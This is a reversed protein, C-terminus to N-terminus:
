HVQLNVQPEVRAVPRETAVDTAPGERVAGTEGPVLYNVRPVVREAAFDATLGEALLVGQVFVAGSVTADGTGVGAVLAAPGECVRESELPVDPDVLTLLPLGAVDAAVPAEPAARASVVSRVEALDAALGERARRRELPVHADVYDGLPELASVAVPRELPLAAEGSVLAPGVRGRLLEGAVDAALAEAEPVIRFRVVLHVRALAGMGAFDATLQAVRRGVQPAVVRDVARFPRVRALGAALSEPARSVQRGVPLRVEGACPAAPGGGRREVGGGLRGPM